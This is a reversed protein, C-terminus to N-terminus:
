PAVASGTLRIDFPSEDADNSQIHIAANRIGTSRPKFTVKFTTSNGPALSSNLPQTVAFDPANTGNKTISIGTLKARGTNKVTFLKSIGASGVKATGLNKKTGDTIGTGAPQQVVIEPQSTGAPLDLSVNQLTFMGYTTKNVSFGSIKVANAPLTISKSVPTNTTISDNAPSLIVIDHSNASSDLYTLKFAITNGSPAGLKSIVATLKITKSDTINTALRQKIVVGVYGTPYPHLFAEGNAICTWGTQPPVVTWATTTDFSGNTLLEAAPLAASGLVLMGFCASLIRQSTRTTKM